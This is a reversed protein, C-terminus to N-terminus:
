DWSVIAETVDHKSNGEGTNCSIFLVEFTSIIWPWTREQNASVTPFVRTNNVQWKVDISHELWFLCTPQIFIHSFGNGRARKFFKHYNTEKQCSLDSWWRALNYHTIKLWRCKLTKVKKVAKTKKVSYLNYLLYQQFKFKTNLEWAFWRERARVFFIMEWYSSSVSIKMTYEKFPKTWFVFREERLHAVKGM